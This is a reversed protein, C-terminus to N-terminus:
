THFVKGVSHIDSASNQLPKRTLLILDNEMLSRSGPSHDDDQVFRVVHFDDIREVSLVSLSGSCLEESSAMEQYSSQLQAKFEELVLPRFIEFYVDPSQFCVPVEKLNGVSQSDKETGSALGVAVFFDLELIPRYWDDLRPPQFRKMGGGLRMSGARSGLPLSLQIVQRKPCSVSPKMNQSHQPKPPKFFSFKWADDDTDFVIDKIVRDSAKPAKNASENMKTASDMSLDHIAKNSLSALSGSSDGEKLNVAGDPVENLSSNNRSLFCNTLGDRSEIADGRSQSPEAPVPSQSAQAGRTYDLNTKRVRDNSYCGVRSGAESSVVTGGPYNVDKEKSDAILEGEAVGTGTHYDYAMTKTSWSNSVGVHAPVDSEKEDDSLIILDGRKRDVFSESDLVTVQSVKDEHVLLPDEVPASKSRSATKNLLSCEEKLSVSLRAVQKSVQDVSVKEASLFM